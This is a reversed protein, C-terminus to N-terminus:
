RPPHKLKIRQGCNQQNMCSSPDVVTVFVRCLETPSLGRSIDGAPNVETPVYRWSVTGAGLTVELNSMVTHIESVRNGIFAKYTSSIQRIWHLVTTFDSWFIIKEIKITMEKVLTQALRMAVLAGM